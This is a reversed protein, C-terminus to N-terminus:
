QDTSIAATIASADLQTIVYWHDVGESWEKTQEVDHGAVPDFVIDGNYCVVAHTQEQDKIKLAAIAYGRPVRGHDYDYWVMSLGFPALFDCWVDLWREAVDGHENLYHDPMQELPLHLISAVCAALCNGTDGRVNQLIPM